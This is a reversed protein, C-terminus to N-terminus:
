TIHALYEELVLYDWLFRGIKSAVSPDIGYVDKFLWGDARTGFSMADNVLDGGCAGANGNEIAKQDAETVHEPIHRWKYKAFLHVRASTFFPGVDTLKTVQGELLAIRESMGAALGVEEAKLNDEGAEPIALGAEVNVLRTGVDVMKVALTALQAHCSLVWDSKGSVLWELQVKTVIGFAEANIM